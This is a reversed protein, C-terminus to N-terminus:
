HHSRLDTIMEWMVRCDVEYYREIERLDVERLPVGRKRSDEAPSWAGVM